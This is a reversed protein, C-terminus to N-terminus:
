YKLCFITSAMFPIYSVIISPAGASTSQLPTRLNLRAGMPGGEQIAASQISLSPTALSRELIGPSLQHSRALDAGRATGACSSSIVVLTYVSGALPPANRAQASQHRARGGPGRFTPGRSAEDSDRASVASLKFKPLSRNANM